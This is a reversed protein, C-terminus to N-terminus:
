HEFPWFLLFYVMLLIIKFFAWNIKFMTSCVLWYGNVKIFVIVKVIDMFDDTIYKITKNYLWKAGLTLKLLINSYKSHCPRIPKVLFVKQSHQAISEQPASCHSVHEACSPCLSHSHRSVSPCLVVTIAYSCYCNSSQLFATPTESSYSYNLEAPRGQWYLFGLLRKLTIFYKFHHRLSRLYYIALNLIVSRFWTM